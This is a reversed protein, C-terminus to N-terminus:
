LKTTTTEAFPNTRGFNASATSEPNPQKQKLNDIVSEEDATFATVVKDITSEQKITLQPFEFEVAISINKGGEDQPNFKISKLGIARESNELNTVFRTINEYGGEFSGLIEYSQSTENPQDSGASLSTINLNNKRAETELYSLMQFTDNGSPFFTDVSSLRKEEDSAEKAKLNSITKTIADKRKALESIKTNTELGQSFNPKVFTWIIYISLLIAVLILLGNAHKKLFQQNKTEPVAKM